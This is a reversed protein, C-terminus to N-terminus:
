IIYLNLHSELEDSISKLGEVYYGELLSELDNIYLAFLFPSLNEGQGAGNNCPVYDLKSYRYTYMICYPYYCSKTGKYMNVIVNFM